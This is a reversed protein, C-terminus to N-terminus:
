YPVFGCGSWAPMTSQSPTRRTSGAWVRLSEEPNIPNAIDEVATRGVLRDKLKVVEDEGEYIAQGFVTPPAM